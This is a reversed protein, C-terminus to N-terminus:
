ESELPTLEAITQLRPRTKPTLDGVEVGYITLTSSISQHLRPDTPIQLTQNNYKAADGIKSNTTHADQGSLMFPAFHELYYLPLL